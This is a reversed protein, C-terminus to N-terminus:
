RETLAGSRVLKVLKGPEEKKKEQPKDPDRWEKVHVEAIVAEGDGDGEKRYTEQRTHVVEEQMNISMDRFAKVGTFCARQKEKGEYFRLSVEGHSPQGRGPPILPGFTVKWSSPVTVKKKTGDAMELLYVTEDASPAKAM